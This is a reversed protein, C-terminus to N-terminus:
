SSHTFSCIVRYRILSLCELSPGVTTYITIAFLMSGVFSWSYQVGDPTGMLSCNRGDYADDDFALVDQSYRDRICM